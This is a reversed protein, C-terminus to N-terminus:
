DLPIPSPYTRSGTAPIILVPHQVARIVHRVEIVCNRTKRDGITCGCVDSNDRLIDMARIRWESLGISDSTSCDGLIEDRQRLLDQESSLVAAAVQRAPVRVVIIQPRDALEKYWVCCRWEDRGVEVVVRCNIIRIRNRENNSHSSICTSGLLEREQELVLRCIQEHIRANNSDRRRGISCVITNTSARERVINRRATRHRALNLDFSYAEM